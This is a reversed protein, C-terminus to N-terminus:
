SQMRKTNGQVVPKPAAQESAEDYGQRKEASKIVAFGGSCKLKIELVCDSISFRSAM